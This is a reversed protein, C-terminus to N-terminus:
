SDNQNSIIEKQFNVRVIIIKKFYKSISNETRSYYAKVDTPKDFSTWDTRSKPGRLQNLYYDEKFVNIRLSSLLYNDPDTINLSRYFDELLTNNLIEKPYGIRVIMMELKKKAELKTMNDIWEAKELVQNFVSSIEKAMKSAAEKSEPKFANQVFQSGM